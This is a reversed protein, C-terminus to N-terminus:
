FVAINKALEDLEIPKMDIVLAVLRRRIMNPKKLLIKVEYHNLLFKWKLMKLEMENLQLYQESSIGLIRCAISDTLRAEALTGTHDSFQVNINFFYEFKDGSYGM